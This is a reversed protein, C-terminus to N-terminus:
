WLAVVMQLSWYLHYHKSLTEQKMEWFLFPIIILLQICQRQDDITLIRYSYFYRENSCTEDKEYMNHQANFCDVKTQNLGTAIASQVDNM